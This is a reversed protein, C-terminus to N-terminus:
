HNYLTPVKCNKLAWDIWWELWLLRALNGDLEVHAERERNLLHPDCTACDCWGPEGTKRHKALSKRVAALIKPTLRLTGPHGGRLHKGDYFVEDLGEAHVFEIWGSYSPHRSNGNQTLFDGPFSPADPEAHRQVIVSADEPDIEAEGIYFDYGM